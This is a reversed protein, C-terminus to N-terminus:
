ELLQVDARRGVATKAVSWVVRSAWPLRQVGAGLNEGRVAAHGVRGQFGEEVRVDRLVIRAHLLREGPDRLAERYQLIRAHGRLLIGLQALLPEVVIIVGHRLRKGEVALRDDLVFLAKLVM